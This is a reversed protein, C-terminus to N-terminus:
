RGPASSLQDLAYQIPCIMDIPESWHFRIGPWSKKILLMAREQILDNRTGRRIRMWMGQDATDRLDMCNIDAISATLAFPAAEDSRQPSFYVESVPHTATIESSHILWERVSCYVGDIFGRRFVGVIYSQGVPHWDAFYALLDIPKLDAPLVIRRMQKWEPSCKCPGNTHPLGRRICYCQYCQHQEIGDAAIKVQLRIFEARAAEGQEELHDAYILRATDDDPHELIYALQPDITATM